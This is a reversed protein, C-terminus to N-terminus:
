QMRAKRGQRQQEALMKAALLSPVNIITTRTPTTVTSSAPGPPGTPGVSQGVPVVREGGHAVIPVAQRPNGSVVGGGAFNQVGGTGGTPIGTVSVNDLETNLNAVSATLADVNGVQGMASSGFDILAAGAIPTEEGLLTMKEAQQEVADRSPGILGPMAAYQDLITETEFGLTGAADFLATTAEAMNELPLVGDSYAQTLIPVSAALDVQKQDLIGLEQGLKSYEDLGIDAADFEGLVQQKFMEDTANALQGILEQQSSAFTRTAEAAALTSAAQMDAVRAAKEGLAIRTATSSELEDSLNAVAQGARPSAEAMRDMQTVFEQSPGGARVQAGQLDGIRQALLDVEQSTDTVVLKQQFIADAQLSAASAGEQMIRAMNFQAETFAPLRAAGETVNANFNDVATVYDFFNTVNGVISQNLSDQAMTMTKTFKESNGSVDAFLKVAPNLDDWAKASRDVGPAMEALADNLLVGSAVLENVQNGLSGAAQEADGAAAATKAAEKNYRETVVVLGVLAVALLGVSAQAAISKTKLADLGGGLKFVAVTAIGLGAAFTVTGAELEALGAVMPTIIEVGASFAPVLGDGVTISLDSLQAKLRESKAAADEQVGGLKAAVERGKILAANAFSQSKELDTLDAVTKGMSAAYIQQAESSKLTIGLNDLILPSQRGIATTLDDVAQTASLGQARGLTIAVETLDKMNQANDVVKLSLAKSSIAMADMQSITGLSADQIGTIFGSAEKAGGALGTLSTRFRDAQLSASISSKAVGLIAAGGALQAMPGLLGSAQGKLGDFGKGLGKIGKGLGKVGKGVKQFVKSTTEKGAVIIFIKHEAM